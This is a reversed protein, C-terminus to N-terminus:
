RGRKGGKVVSVGAARMRDQLAQRHNRASGKWGFSPNLRYSRSVGIRPGEVLAGLDVLRKVARNVQAPDMELERAIESQNAQILNEYDLRKLMAMLTRFDEVRRLKMLSGLADQAMAFWRRGFGNERKPFLVAVYGDEMVEGTNVDVQHLRRQM